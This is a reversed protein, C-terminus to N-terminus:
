ASILVFQRLKLVGRRGSHRAANESVHQAKAISAWDWGEAQLAVAEYEALTLGANEAMQILPDDDDSNLAGSRALAMDIMANLDKLLESQEPLVFRDDAPVGPEDLLGRRYRPHLEQRASDLM